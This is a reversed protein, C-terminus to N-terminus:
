TKGLEGHEKRCTLYWDHCSSIKPGFTRRVWGQREGDLALQDHDQWTGPVAM